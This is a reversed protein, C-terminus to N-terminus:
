PGHSICIHSPSIHALYPHTSVACSSRPCGRTRVSGTRPRIACSPTRCASSCSRTLVSGSSGRSRVSLACRRAPAAPCGFWKHVIISWIWGWWEFAIMGIPTGIIGLIVVFRIWAIVRRSHLLFYLFLNRRSIIQKIVKHLVFFSFTWLFM